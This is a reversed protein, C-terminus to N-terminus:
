LLEFNQVENDSNLSYKIKHGEIGATIPEDINEVILPEDMGEFYFNYIFKQKMSPNNFIKEVKILEVKIIKKTITKGM